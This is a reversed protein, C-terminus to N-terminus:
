VIQEVMAAVRELIVMHCKNKNVLNESLVTFLANIQSSGSSQTVAYTVADTIKKKFM